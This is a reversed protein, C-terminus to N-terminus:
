ATKELQGDARDEDAPDGDLESEARDKVSLLWTAIESGSEGLLEFYQIACGSAPEVLDLHGSVRWFICEEGDCLAYQGHHHKLECRDVM